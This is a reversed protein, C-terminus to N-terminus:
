YSFVQLEYEHLIVHLGATRIANPSRRFITLSLLEVVDIVTADVEPADECVVNAVAHADRFNLCVLAKDSESVYKWIAMRGFVHSSEPVSFTGQALAECSVIPLLQAMLQADEDRFIRLGPLLLMGAIANFPLEDSSVHALRRREDVSLEELFRMLGEMDGRRIFDPGRIDLAYPSLDDGNARITVGAAIAAAKVSDTNAGDPLDALLLWTIGISRLQEFYSTPVNDLSESLTKALLRAVSIQLGMEAAGGSGFGADSEVSHEVVDATLDFEDLRGYGFPYPRL